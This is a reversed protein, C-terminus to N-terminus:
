STGIHYPVNTTLPNIFKKMHRKRCRKVCINLELHPQDYNEM